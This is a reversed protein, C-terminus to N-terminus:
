MNERDYDGAMDDYCVAQSDLVGSRANEAERLRRTAEIHKTLKAQAFEENQKRAEEAQRVAEVRVLEERRRVEEARKREEEAQKAKLYELCNQAQKEREKMAEQLRDEMKVGGIV